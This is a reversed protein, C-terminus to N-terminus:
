HKGVVWLSCQWEFQISCFVRSITLCHNYGKLDASVKEWPFLYTSCSGAALAGRPRRAAERPRQYKSAACGFRDSTESRLQHGPPSSRKTKVAPCHHYGFRSAYSSCQSAIPN